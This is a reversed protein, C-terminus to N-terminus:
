RGPVFSFKRTVYTDEYNFRVLYVGPTNGTLNLGIKHSQVSIFEVDIQQGLMNFVSVTEPFIESDSVLTIQSSTPNPYISVNAPIDVLPTDTVINCNCAILETVNVMAYNLSNSEKFNYWQSNQKYYFHNTSNEDTRLSQYIAFTDQENINSLEFGVFFTDAPQVTESFATYNMADETFGYVNVTQSYILTEPYANGNYVKLTIQSTAGGTKLDLKGIGLSIGDLTEDSGIYFREVYETIGQNNTGGWYGGYENLINAHEDDDNLNTFAACLEEGSNFQKGALSETGSNIPDLWCKLQETSDSRYDWQMNIRAFYDNYPYGCQAQGGTLTGIVNESTNFLAGGSSGGETVGEDWKSIKYFAQSIYSSSFDTITPSNYDSSIKKIDGLPHHISASSDPLNESRDWGAYYPRFSAPPEDDLRVLAFDLSDYTAKMIAGSLSNVPDGDLPACYPSEYNFTYVTTEAYDWEDYCHAASIIYPTEDEATNNVLTGSCIETGDVILRCVSNKVDDWADGSECNVDVNCEGSTGLPRRTSKLIGIFDHNVRAIEFNVPTGMEEPVEYQITLENGSVPAVAFKKSAKNNASTFAGLYHNEEENYIFLRTGDALQFDSFILNLSKADESYISLKWVNYGADTTYWQGSNGANLAVEFAHAFKFPKLLNDTSNNKEIAADIESQELVPLIVKINKSSKLAIVQLPFGGHSIQGFSIKSLLILNFLLYISFRM